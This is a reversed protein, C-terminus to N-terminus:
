ETVNAQYEALLPSVSGNYVPVGTLVGQFEKLPEGIRPGTAGFAMERITREHM